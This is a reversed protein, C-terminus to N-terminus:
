SCVLRTPNLSMSFFRVLSIEALSHLIPCRPTKCLWLMRWHVAPFLPMTQNQAPRVDDSIGGNKKNQDVSAPDGTASCDDLEPLLPRKKELATTPM